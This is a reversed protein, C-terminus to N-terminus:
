REAWTHMSSCLLMCICVYVYVYMYVCVQGILKERRGHEREAWTQMNSHLLMCSVGAKSAFDMLVYLAEESNMTMMSTAGACWIFPICTWPILTMWRTMTLSAAYRADDVSAEDVAIAMMSNITSIVEFFCPFFALALFLINVPFSLWSALFGFAIMFINMIITRILRRVPICSLTSYMCLMTPTTVCWSILRTVNIRRQNFSLLVTSHGSAMGAYGLLSLGNIVAPFVFLASREPEVTWLWAVFDLSLMTSFVIMATEAMHIGDHHEPLARMKEDSTIFTISALYLLPHLSMCVFAYITTVRMGLFKSEMIDNTTTPSESEVGDYEESEEGLPPLLRKGAVPGNRTSLPEGDSNVFMSVPLTVTICCGMGHAAPAAIVRGRHAEVFKRAIHLGLTQRPHVASVSNTTEIEKKDSGGGFPGEFVQLAHAPSLWVGTDSVVLSVESLDTSPNATLVVQGQTTFKISNSLLNHLIQRLREADAHIFRCTHTNTHTRPTNKVWSLM